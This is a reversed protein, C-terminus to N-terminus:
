RLFRVLAQAVCVPKGGAETEVVIDATIQAGGTVEDVAALTATGRLKSGAPVPAPFRVKNLGYNVKTTVDRVELIETWM